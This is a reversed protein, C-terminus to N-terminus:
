GNGAPALKDGLLRAYEDSRAPEYFGLVVVPTLSLTSLLRPDLAVGEANGHWTKFDVVLAAFSERAPVFYRLYFEAESGPGVGSLFRLVAEAPEMAAVSTPM